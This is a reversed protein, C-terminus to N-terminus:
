QSLGSFLSIAQSILRDTERMFCFKKRFEKAFIM